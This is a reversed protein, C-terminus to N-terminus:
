LMTKQFQTLFFCCYCQGRREEGGREKWLDVDYVCIRKKKKFIDTCRKNKVDLAAADERTQLPPLKVSVCETLSFHCKSEWFRTTQQLCMSRKKLRRQEGSSVIFMQVTLAGEEKSQFHKDGCGSLSKIPVVCLTELAEDQLFSNLNSLRWKVNQAGMISCKYFFFPLSLCQEAM